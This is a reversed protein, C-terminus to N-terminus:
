IAATRQTFSIRELIFCTHSAHNCSSKNKRSCFLLRVDERASLEYVSRSIRRSPAAIGIRAFPPSACTSPMTLEAHVPIVEGTINGDDNAAKLVDDNDFTVVVVVVTDDDGAVATATAPDVVDVFLAMKVSFAVVIVSAIKYRELDLELVLKAFHQAKMNKVITAVVITHASLLIAEILCNTRLLFCRCSGIKNELFDALNYKTKRSV